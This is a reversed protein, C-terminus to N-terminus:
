IKVSQTLIKWRELPKFSKKEASKKGNKEGGAFLISQYSFKYSYYANGRTQNLLFVGRDCM